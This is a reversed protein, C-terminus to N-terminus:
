SPSWNNIEKLGKKMSYYIEENEIQEKLDRFFNDFKQLEVEYLEM